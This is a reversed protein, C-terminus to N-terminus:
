RSSKQLKELLAASVFGIIVFIVWVWVWVWSKYWGILRALLGLVGVMGLWRGIFLVIVLLGGLVAALKEMAKMEQEYQTQYIGSRVM